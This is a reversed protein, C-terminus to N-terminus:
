RAPRWRVYLTMDTIEPPCLFRVPVKSIGLGRTVYLWTQGHALRVMGHSWNRPWGEDLHLPGFLPLRVQGGHSHGALYLDIGTPVDNPLELLEIPNHGVVVTADFEARAGGPNEWERAFRAPDDFEEDLLVEGAPGRVSLFEWSSGGAGRWSGGAVVGVSGSRPRAPDTDLFEVPWGAPEPDEARWIRSRVVTGAESPVVVARVLYDTRPAVAPGSDRTSGSWRAGEPVIAAWELRGPIVRLRYGPRDPSEMLAIGPGDEAGPLRLRALVEMGAWAAAGAGRYRAVTLTRGWAARLRGGGSPDVDLPAFLGNPGCVRIRAQGAPVVIAANDIARVGPPFSSRILDPWLSEQEGWAVVVGDRAHFGALWETTAALTEQSPPGDDGGFIDGGIAVLDPALANVRERVRRDFRRPPGTLDFDSLFAIRYTGERREPWHGVVELSAPEVVIRNPEVFLAYLCLLGAILGNWALWPLLSAVVSRIRGHSADRASQRVREGERNTTV